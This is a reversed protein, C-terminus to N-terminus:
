MRITAQQVRPWPPYVTTTPAGSILIEDYQEGGTVADYIFGIVLRGSVTYSTLGLSLEFVNDSLVEVDIGDNLDYFIDNPIDQTYVYYEDEGDLVLQSQPPFNDVNAAARPNRTLSSPATGDDFEFVQGLLSGIRCRVTGDDYSVGGSGVREDGTVTVSANVLAIGDSTSITHLDVDGDGTSVGHIREVGDAKVLSGSFYSAVSNGGRDDWTRNVTWSTADYTALYARGRDTGHVKEQGGDYAIQIYEDSTVTHIRIDCVRNIPDADVGFVNLVQGWAGHGTVWVNSSTDYRWYSVVDDWSLGCTAIHIIDGVVFSAISGALDVASADLVPENSSDELSFAATDPDSSSWISLNTDTGPHRLGLIYVASNVLWPGCSSKHAGSGGGPFVYATPLTRPLAM